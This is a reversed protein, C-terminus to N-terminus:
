RRMIETSGDVCDLKEWKNEKSFLGEQGPNTELGGGGGGGVCM